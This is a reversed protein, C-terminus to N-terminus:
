RGGPHLRTAPSSASKRSYTKLLDGFLAIIRAKLAEEEWSGYPFGADDAVYIFGREPM